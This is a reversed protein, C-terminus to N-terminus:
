YKSKEKEMEKNDNHKRKNDRYKEEIQICSNRELKNEM